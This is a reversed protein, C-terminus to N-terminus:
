IASKKAIVRIIPPDDGRYPAFGRSEVASDITFGVSKLDATLEDLVLFRRYHDTVYANKAVLQGKGYLPDHISRAEILFLGGPELHDYVWRIVKLSSEYSISHFTFRSYVTRIQLHDLSLNTFDAVFFTPNDSKLNKVATDSLDCAYVRINHSAFYHADRGNGCGLELLCSDKSILPLVHEAFPSPTETHPQAYFSNWYPNDIGQANLHFSLFIFFLLM